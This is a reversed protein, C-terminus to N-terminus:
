PPPNKRNDDGVNLAKRLHRIPDNVDLVSVNLSNTPVLGSFGGPFKRPSRAAKRCNGTELTTIPNTRDLIAECRFM